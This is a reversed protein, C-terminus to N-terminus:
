KKADLPDPGKRDELHWRQNVRRLNLQADKVDKLTITAIDGGDVVVGERLYRRFEKVTEPYEGFHARADAVVLKFARNRAENRVLANFEGADSTLRERATLGQRFQEDRVLRYEREVAVEISKARGEVRADILKPDLLHAVLYEFRKKDLSLTASNLAEKVTGQPYADTAPAIGYRAAPAAPEQAFAMATVCLVALGCLTTRM